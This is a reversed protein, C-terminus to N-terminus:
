CTQNIIIINRRIQLYISTLQTWHETWTWQIHNSFIIQLEPSLVSIRFWNSKDFTKVPAILLRRAIELQFSESLLCLEDLQLTTDFAREASLLWYTMFGILRRFIYPNRAVFHVWPQIQPECLRRRNWNVQVLCSYIYCRGIAHAVNRQNSSTPTKVSGFADFKM